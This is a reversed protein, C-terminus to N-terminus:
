GYNDCDDYYHKRSLVVICNRKKFDYLMNLKRMRLFYLINTKKRM